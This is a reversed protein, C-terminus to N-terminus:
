PREQGQRGRGRGRFGAGLDTLSRSIRAQGGEASRADSMAPVSAASSSLAAEMPEAQQELAASLLGPSRLAWKAPGGEPKARGQAPRRTPWTQRGKGAASSQRGARQGARLRTGRGSAPKRRRPRCALVHPADRDAAPVAAASTPSHVERVPSLPMGAAGSLQPRGRPIPKPIGTNLLLM